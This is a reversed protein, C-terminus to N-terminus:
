SYGKLFPHMNWVLAPNRGDITHTQRLCEPSMALDIYGKSM